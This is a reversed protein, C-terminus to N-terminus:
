WEKGALGYYRRFKQGNRRHSRAPNMRLLYLTDSMDMFSILGINVDDNHKQFLSLITEHSESHGLVENKVKEATVYNDRRQM